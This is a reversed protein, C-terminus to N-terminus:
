AEAAKEPVFYGGVLAGLAPVALSILQEIDASIEAPIQLGLFQPDTLLWMLIRALPAAFGAGITASWVKRNVGGIIKGPVSAIAKFPNM